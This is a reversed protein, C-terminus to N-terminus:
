GLFTRTQDWRAVKRGPKPAPGCTHLTSRVTVGSIHCKDASNAVLDQDWCGCLRHGLWSRPCRHTTPLRFTCPRIGMQSVSALHSSSHKGFPFLSTLSAAININNDTHIQSTRPPYILQAAYRNRSAQAFSAADNRIGQYSYGSQTVVAGHQHDPRHAVNIGVAVTSIVGTPRATYSRSPLQCQRRRQQITSPEADVIPNGEAQGPAPHM